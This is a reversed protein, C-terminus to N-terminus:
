GLKQYSYSMRINYYFYSGASSAEEWEMVTDVPVGSYSYTSGSKFSVVLYQKDAWYTSSQITSSPKTKVNTNAKSFREIEGPKLSEEPDKEDEIKGDRIILRRSSSKSSRTSLGQQKLFATPINFKLTDAKFDAHYVNESGLQKYLDKLLDEYSTNIAM